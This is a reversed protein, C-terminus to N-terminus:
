SLNVQSGRTSMRCLCCSVKFLVFTVIIREHEYALEPLVLSMQTYKNFFLLERLQPSIFCVLLTLGSCKQSRKFKNIVTGLRYSVTSNRDGHKFGYLVRTNQVFILQFRFCVVSFQICIMLIKNLLINLGLYSSLLWPVDQYDQHDQILFIHASLGNGQLQLM